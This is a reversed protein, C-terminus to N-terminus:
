HEQKPGDLRELPFAFSTLCHVTLRNAVAKDHRVVNAQHPVTRRPNLRPAVPKLEVCRARRILVARRRNLLYLHHGPILAEAPVNWPPCAWPHFEAGRSGEIVERRDCSM